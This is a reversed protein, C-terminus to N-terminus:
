LRCRHRGRKSIRIPGSFYGDNIKHMDKPEWNNEFYTNTHTGEKLDVM